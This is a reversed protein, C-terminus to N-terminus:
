LWGAGLQAVVLSLGVLTGGVGAGLQLVTTLRGGLARDWAFSVIGMTVVSLLSFAALFALATGLTPSATVLVIVLAGSGAIGHVVGVAFSGGHLHAHTSGLSLRGFRLHRHPSSDHAHRRLEMPGVADLVLRGGLFVLVGGVLAEFLSTVSPPLRIGLLFFSLGIVVVPISHGVGWSAGVVGPPRSTEDDEVLTAIAALHDAEFAHRVGVLGGALLATFVAM